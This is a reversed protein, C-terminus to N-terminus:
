APVRFQQTNAEVCQGLIMPVGDESKGQNDLCLDAAENRILWYYDWGNKTDSHTRQWVQEGDSDRCKQQVIEAGAANGTPALCMGSNQNVIKFSDRDKGYGGVWSWQENGQDCHTEWSLGWQIIKAGETKAESAVGICMGSYASAFPSFDGPAPDAEGGDKAAKGSESKESEKPDDPKKSSKSASSAAGSESQATSWEPDDASASGTDDGLLPLVFVIGGAVLLVAVAAAVLALRRSIRRERPLSGPERCAQALAAASAFREGPERALCRTVVRAVESPATGQPLTPPQPDLHGAIVKGTTGSYPLRGALCQYAVIGLSYVDSAPTLEGGTLYEPSIYSPTGVVEGAETLPDQTPSYAIGFDVLTVRGASGIIINGPKVDRHVIGATHAAHLAEATQRVIDMTTDVDLRVREELLAALSQGEVFDIVIYCRTRGETDTEECWDHIRVIGPVDLAALTRAERLFRHRYEADEALDPRLVKIAVTRGLQTDAARWVSGMGGFGLRDGLRYRDGLLQGSKM